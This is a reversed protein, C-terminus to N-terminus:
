KVVDYGLPGIMGPTNASTGSSVPRSAEYRNRPATPNQPNSAASMQNSDGYLGTGPRPASSPHAPRGASATSGVYGDRPRSAYPDPHGPMHPPMSHQGPSYQTPGASPAHSSSRRDQCDQCNGRTCGPCRPVEMHGRWYLDTDCPDVTNLGPGGPPVEHPDMAQVLEPRVLILLEIENNQHHVARFAAGLWPMDALVPIGRNTAEIRNQVLGALALTQGAKMEVGTDIMREKLGPVLSGNVLIANSPDLESIRPRVELRINGNGLVIPLFDVQTGYKKYEITVSGLSQPVPVPIEGGVNFSAPRGSVTVLKPEALIKAMNNQRLLRLFGFFSNSGDVIGFRVTDGANGGVPTVAGPSLTSSAILGSISSVIADNGNFNAFDFGMDRLKTRSVEMVQVNLLIQQVGGVKMNNIIKPAYDESLRVISSVHDPRDVYGSLILSNSYRYVRISSYPFQDQLAMQLEQVDGYVAVDVSYIRKTDDWLHIQTVGPKLASIQLENAALPTVSLVEPNNVQARSFKGDITLIRSTSATMEMREVSSNLRQVVESSKVWTADNAPTGNFGQDALGGQAGAWGGNGANSTAVREVPRSAYRAQAQMAQQQQYQESSLARSEVALSQGGHPGGQVQGFNAPQRQMAAPAQSAPQQLGASQGATQNATAPTAYRENTSPYLPRAEYGSAQQRANWQTNGVPPSGGGMTQASVVAAMGSTAAVVMARSLVRQALTSFKLRDICM